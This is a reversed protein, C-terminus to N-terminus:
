DSLGLAQQYDHYADLDEGGIVDVGVNLRDDNALLPTLIYKTREIGLTDFAHLVYPTLYGIYHSRPVFTAVIPGDRLQAETPENLGYTMLTLNDVMKVIQQESLREEVAPDGLAAVEPALEEAKEAATALVAEAALVIQYGNENLGIMGRPLTKCPRLGDYVSCYHRWNPLSVLGEPELLQRALNEVANEDRADSVVVWLGCKELMDRTGQTRQVEAPCSDEDNCSLLVVTGDDFGGLAEVFQAAIAQGVSYEDVGIFLERGSDPHDTGLTVVSTDFQVALEIQGGLSDAAAAIAITSPPAAQLEKMQQTQHEEQDRASGVAVDVALGPLALEESARDVGHEIAQSTGEDSRTLLIALHRDSPEARALEGALVDLTNEFRWAKFPGDPPPQRVIVRSESEVADGNDHGCATLPLLLLATCLLRTTDMSRKRASTGKM